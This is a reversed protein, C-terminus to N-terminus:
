LILAFHLLRIERYAVIVAKAKLIFQSFRPFQLQHQTDILSIIRFHEFFLTFGRTLLSPLM